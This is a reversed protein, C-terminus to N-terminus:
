RLIDTPVFHVITPQPVNATMNIAQETMPPLPPRLVAQASRIVHFLSDRATESMDAVDCDADHGLREKAIQMLLRGDIQGNTGLMRVSTTLDEVQAQLMPDGEMRLRRLM